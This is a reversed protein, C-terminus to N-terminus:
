RIKHGYRDYESIIRLCQKLAEKKHNCLPCVHYTVIYEVDGHTDDDGYGCDTYITEHRIERENSITFSSNLSYKGCNPCYTYTQKKKSILDELWGKMEELLQIQEGEPVKKLFYKVNSIFRKKIFM